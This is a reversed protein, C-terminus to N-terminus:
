SSPIFVDPSRLQWARVSPLPPPVAATAVYWPYVSRPAAMLAAMLRDTAFVNGVGEQAMDVIEPDYRTSVYFFEKDAFRRLKVESKATVRDFSDDYQDLNGCWKSRPRPM